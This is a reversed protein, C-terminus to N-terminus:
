LHNLKCFLKFFLHIWILWSWFKNKKKKKQSLAWVQPFYFTLITLISKSTGIYWMCSGYPSRELAPTLPFGHWRRPLATGATVAWGRKAREAAGATGGCVHVCVSFCCSLHVLMVLVLLSLGWLLTVNAVMFFGGLKLRSVKISGM